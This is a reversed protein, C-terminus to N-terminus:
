SILPGNGSKSPRISILTSFRVFGACGCLRILNGACFAATILPKQPRYAQAAARTWMFFERFFSPIRHFADVDLTGVATGPREEPGRRHHMLAGYGALLDIDAGAEGLSAHPCSLPTGTHVSPILQDLLVQITDVPDNATGDMRLPSRNRYAKRKHKKHPYGNKSEQQHGKRVVRILSKWLSHCYVCSM